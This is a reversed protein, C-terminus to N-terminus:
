KKGHKKKKHKKPKVKRSKRKAPKKKPKSKAEVVPVYKKLFSKAVSAAKTTELSSVEQLFSEVKKPDRSALYACSSIAIEQLAENQNEGAIWTEFLVSATRKPNLVWLNSLAAYVSDRITPDETLFMRLYELSKKVDTQGMRGMVYCCTALSGTKSQRLEAQMNAVHDLFHWVPKPDYGSM